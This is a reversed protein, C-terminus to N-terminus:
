TKGFRVFLELFFHTSKNIKDIGNITDRILVNWRKRSRLLEKEQGAAISQVFEQGGAKMDIAPRREFTHHCEGGRCAVKQLGFFDSGCVVHWVSLRSATRFRSSACGSTAVHMANRTRTKRRSPCNTSIRQWHPKAACGIPMTDFFFLDTEPPISHSKDARAPRTHLEGKAPQTQLHWRGLIDSISPTVSASVRDFLTQLCRDLNRM